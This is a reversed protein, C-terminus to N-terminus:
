DVCVTHARMPADPRACEIQPTDLRPACGFMVSRSACAGVHVRAIEGAACPGSEPPTASPEVHDDLCAGECDAASLCRQGADHTPRDCTFAGALGQPGFVGGDALCADRAAVFAPALASQTAARAVIAAGNEDQADVTVVLESPEVPVM